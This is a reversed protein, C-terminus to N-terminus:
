ETVETTEALETVPEAPPQEPEDPQGFKRVRRKPKETEDVDVDEFLDDGIYPSDDDWLSGAPIEGFGPHVHTQTCRKM